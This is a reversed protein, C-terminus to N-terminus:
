EQLNVTLRSARERLEVYQLKGEHFLALRGTDRLIVSLKGEHDTRYSVAPLLMKGRTHTASLPASLYAEEKDMSVIRILEPKKPDELLFIGPVSPVNVSDTFFVCVSEGGAKAKILKFSPGATVALWVEACKLPGDGSELTLVATVAQNLYPYGKGPKLQMSGYWFNNKCIDLFVDETLFGPASISLTHRGEAIDCLVLLGGPKMQTKVPYGDLACRVGAGSAPAGTFGDQLRVVASVRRRIM